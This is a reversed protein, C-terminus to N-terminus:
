ADAIEEEGAPAPRRPMRAPSRDARQDAGGLPLSLQGHVEVKRGSPIDPDATYYVVFKVAPFERRLEERVYSEVARANAADDDSFGVSIPRTLGRERAIRIVHRVFDRVAFQKREETSRAGNGSRSALTEFAPSRVAHYKNHRLYYDLTEADSGRGHAPDFIDMYGRLNRLMTEREGPSLVRAIFYAVGARIVDPAHGRATVIAFIRGEVLVQRFRTFSPAPPTRGDAVRDVALRTDRLFVNEDGVEVDRFERCALEWDGNEPRYNATDSRIVSFVATSVPHPLWAGGPGRREMHIRTPMHLINDDWDFIYYKLDRDAVRYNAKHAAATM